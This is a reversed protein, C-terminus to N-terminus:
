IMIGCKDRVLDDFYGKIGSGSLSILLSRDLLRNGTECSTESIMSCSHCAAGNIRDEEPKLTMCLPDTTCILANKLGNLHIKTFNTIRGMEVLGGLSGEKDSSGTYLLIGCMTGSYYVREKIAASSYGCELSLEKIIIHAFTHLLAYIADRNKINTWGRKIAWREYVERYRNSLQKIDGDNSVWKDVEERNFEIFIGEGHVNVAPLWRDNEKISLKVIGTPDDADPEPAENRMFGLLVLVERLRHVKILRKFYKRLYGPLDEEEAKFHNERRNEYDEFHTIASYEAQKIEVYDKVKSERHELAADFEKRSYKDKFYKEFIKNVGIDGFLEKSEFIIRYHEEILSYLPNIWPPISIASRLVPFYVNSAGRQMPIMNKNCSSYEHRGPRHPHRGSCKCNIFNSESLARAMTKTAGCSCKVVLEALSSTNGTAILRLKGKCKPDGDHVWWSWPFDDLHGDKCSAIFRAPYAEWGCDPCTPGNELYKELEFNDKLNFLRNCKKNLCVHYDPFAVVPLDGKKSTSPTIFYDVGLYSALRPDIIRRGTDEWRNIDLITVSDMITDIIAGPGFTTILQGPRIDGLNNKM